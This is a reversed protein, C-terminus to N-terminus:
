TRKRFHLAMSGAALLLALVTLIILRQDTPAADANLSEPAAELQAIRDKLAQNENKLEQMAKALLATMHSYHIGDPKGEEDYSVFESLGAEEVEEAIFGAHLRKDEESTSYFTVPRLLDLKDLGGVYDQIDKKFRRSSTSRYFLGNSHVYMNAANSTNTTYTAPSVVRGNAQVQFVVDALFTNWVEIAKEDNNEDTIIMAIGGGDGPSTNEITMAMNRHNSAVPPYGLLKGKSAFDFSGRVHLPGYPDGTGIGVSGDSTIRMREYDSGNYGHIFKLAGNGDATDRVAQLRVLRHPVGDNDQTEFIMGSGFGDVADSDTRHQLALSHLVGNTASSTRINRQIPYDTHSLTLRTDPDTTGIGVNGARTLTMIEREATAPSSDYNFHLKETDHQATLTYGKATDDYLWLNSGNPARGTITLRTSGTSKVELQSIPDPTGIGVNTTSTDNDTGISYIAQATTASTRWLSNTDTDLAMFHFHPAWDVIDDFFKAAVSGSNYATDRFIADALDCNQTDLNGATCFAEGANAFAFAGKRDAGPSILMYAANSTITNGTMSSGDRITIGGVNGGFNAADTLGETVAYYIRNGYADSAARDTLGLTRAPVMGIRVMPSGHRRTGSIGATTCDPVETAFSANSPLLDLRAACPLRGNVIYYDHLSQRIQELKKQTDIYNAQQVMSTGVALGSAMLLSVIIIVISLEVLTFGSQMRNKDLIM